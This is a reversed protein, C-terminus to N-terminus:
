QITGVVPPAGEMCPLNLEPHELHLLRIGTFADYVQLRLLKAVQLEVVAGRSRFWRPLLAIADCFCLEHLDNAFIFRMDDRGPPNEPSFGHERDLDAPSVVEWGKALWIDRAKDLAAFGLDPEGRMPGAIYIRM